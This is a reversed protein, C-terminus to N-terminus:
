LVPQGHGNVADAARILALHSFAQPFNGAMRDLETRAEAPTPSMLDSWTGYFPDPSPTAAAAEVRPGPVLIFCAAFVATFVATTCSTTRM